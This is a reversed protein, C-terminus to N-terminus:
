NDYSLRAVRVGEGVVGVYVYLVTV